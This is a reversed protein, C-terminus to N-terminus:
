SQIPLSFFNSEQPGDRINLTVELIVFSFGRLKIRFEPVESLKRLHM